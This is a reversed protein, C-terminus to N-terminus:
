EAAAIRSLQLTNGRVTNQAHQYVPQKSSVAAPRVRQGLARAGGGRLPIAEGM